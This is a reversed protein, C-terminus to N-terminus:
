KKITYIAENENYEVTLDNALAITQMIEQVQNEDDYTGYFSMGELEHVDFKITVNYYAALRPFVEYLPAHHFILDAVEPVSKKEKLENNTKRRIPAQPKTVNWEQGPALMALLSDRGDTMRRKVSVKGTVLKVMPSRNGKMKEIWFSTGLATTIIDETHVSFPRKVDKAVRFFAKGDLTLQRADSTFDTPWILTSGSSLLVESGDKLSLLTDRDSRNTFEMFDPTQNVTLAQQNEIDAQDSPWFYAGITFAILLSAAVGTWWLKRRRLPVTNELAGTRLDIQKKMIVKHFENIAPQEDSIDLREIWKELHRKEEPTITGLLYESILREVYKKQEQM